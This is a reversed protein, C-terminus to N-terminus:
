REPTSDHRNLHDLRGDMRGIPKSFSSKSTEEHSKTVTGQLQCAEPM